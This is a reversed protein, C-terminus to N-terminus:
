YNNDLAFNNKRTKWKGKTFDPILIPASKKAISKESLPSIASWTATDYTDIPPTAKAKVTEIFANLVFWDMGGHGASDAQASYKQWLPHDNQKLYAEASEWQHKKTAKGFFPVFHHECNSYFIIDREVLMENYEFKNDFLSVAPKNKPDLGSFIEKVYMKAVRKPTGRLSDDTLDMGLTHMIERFHDEIIAIKENDSLDFADPRMPTDTNTMIHDEGLEMIDKM